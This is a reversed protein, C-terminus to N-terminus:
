YKDSNKAKGWSRYRLIKRKKLALEIFAQAKQFADGPANRYFCFLNLWDQLGDRSFGRHSGVFGSLYRHIENVPEMPNESDALGKTEDTGHVESSLVMADILANHSKDGYHIIKSEKAIMKGGRTESESHWKPFYTKDIWVNGSLSVGEQMGEAVAFVKSLWHRGTSDANRKDLPATKVSHFQFLRALFEIWESLPIKRM